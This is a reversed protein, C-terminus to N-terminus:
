IVWAGSGETHPPPPPLGPSVKTHLLLGPLGGWWPGTLVSGQCGRPLKWGQSEGKSASYGLTTGPGTQPSLLSSLVQAKMLCTGQLILCILLYTFLDVSIVPSCSYFM